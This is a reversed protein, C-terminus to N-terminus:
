LKKIVALHKTYWDLQTNIAINLNLATSINTLTHIFFNRIRDFFTLEKPQINYENGFLIRSLITVLQDRTVFYNPNFTSYPNGYYDLGMIGLKCSLKIYYQLEATEKNIDTFDCKRSEDPTLGVFKMAFESAM